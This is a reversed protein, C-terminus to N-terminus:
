KRMRRGFAILGVMGSGLLLASAPIPVPPALGDPNSNTSVIEINLTLGGSWQILADDWWERVWTPAQVTGSNVEGLFTVEHIGESLYLTSPTSSNNHIAFDVVTGGSWAVQMGETKSDVDIFETFGTGDWEGVTWGSSLIPTVTCTVNMDEDDIIDAEVMVIPRYYPAAYCIGTMLFFLGLTFLIIVSKKM